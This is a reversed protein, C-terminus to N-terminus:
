YSEVGVIRRSVSASDAWRPKTLLLLKFDIALMLEIQLPLECLERKLFGEKALLLLLETKTRM